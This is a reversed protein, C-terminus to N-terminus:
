RQDTAIIPTGCLEKLALQTDPPSPRSFHIGISAGVCERSFDAQPKPTYAYM